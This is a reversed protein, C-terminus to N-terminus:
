LNVSNKIWNIAEELNTFHQFPKKFFLKEIQANSMSIEKDSVIAFAALNKIKSTQIYISPDVSYSHIRNTIYGFTKGKFYKQSINVLQENYKPSVTIGENMVVVIYDNYVEITCFHYELLTIM